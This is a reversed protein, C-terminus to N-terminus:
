YVWYPGTTGMGSTGDIGVAVTKGFFFPLGWDFVANSGSGGDTGLEAFVANSANSFLTQANDITFNVTTEPAVPNRNVCSATVASGSYNSTPCFFGAYNSNTCDALHGASDPPLDLTNTGSDIFSGIFTGSQFANFETFFEYASPDVHYLNGSPTNNARTGIGFYITGDVSPQGGATVSPITMVIGNNDTPLDAVPNTVQANLTVTAGATCDLGNTAGSVPNCTYYIQSDSGSVCYSGCDQSGLGVGLIGNFHAESPSTDPSSQSFSCPGPLNGYNPNIVEIPMAVKPEGAMQVYAYEVPGFESSGDGFTM